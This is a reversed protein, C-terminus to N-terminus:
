QVLTLPQTTIQSIALTPLPANTQQFHATAVKGHHPLSRNLSDM